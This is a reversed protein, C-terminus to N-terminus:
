IWNLNLGIEFRTLDLELEFWNRVLSIQNTKSHVEISHTLQSKKKLDFEISDCVVFKRALEICAHM